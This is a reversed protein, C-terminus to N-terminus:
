APDAATGRLILFPRGAGDTPRGAELAKRRRLSRQQCDAAVRRFLEGHEEQWRGAERALERLARLRDRGGHHILDVLDSRQRDSWGPDELRFPEFWGRLSMGAEVRVEFTELLSGVGLTRATALERHVTEFLDKVAAEREGEEEPAHFSTPQWTRGELPVIGVLHAGNALGDGMGAILPELGGWRGLVGRLDGMVLCDVRDPALPSAAPDSRLISPDEDGRLSSSVCSADARPDPELILVDRVRGAAGIRAGLLGGPDQVVAVRGGDPVALVDALHGACGPPFGRATRAAARVPSERSSFWTLVEDQM